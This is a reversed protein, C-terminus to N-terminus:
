FIDLVERHTMVRTPGWLDSHIYDLREKSVYTSPKFSARAYKGLICHECFSLGEPKKKGILGQKYLCDLGKEGIHALKRHWIIAEKSVQGTIVNNLEGIVTKGQSIYLGDRLRGTLKLTGDKTVTLMDNKSKYSCGVKDLTGLSILNGKLEPVYRVEKLFKLSGDALRLTVSGIGRVVCHQNNGM